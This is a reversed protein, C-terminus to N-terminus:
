LVSNIAAERKNFLDNFWGIIIVARDIHKVNGNVYKQVVSHSMNLGMACEIIDGKQMKNKIDKFKNQLKIIEKDM